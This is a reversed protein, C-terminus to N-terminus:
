SDSAFRKKIKVLRVGGNLMEMEDQTLSIPPLENEQFASIFDVEDCEHAIRAYIQLGALLDQQSLVDRQIKLWDPFMQMARSFDSLPIQILAQYLQKIHNQREQPNDEFCAMWAEEIVAFLKDQGEESLCAKPLKEFLEKMDNMSEFWMKIQPDTSGKGEDLAASLM